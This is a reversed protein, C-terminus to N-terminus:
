RVPYGNSIISIRDLETILEKLKYILLMIFQFQRICDVVMEPKPGKEEGGGGGERSWKQPFSVKEVIIYDMGNLENQPWKINILLSEIGKAKKHM